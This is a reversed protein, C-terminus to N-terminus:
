LSAVDYDALAAGIRSLSSAIFTRARPHDAVRQALMLAALGPLVFGLRFRQWDGNGATVLDEDCQRRVTPTISTAALWALDAEGFQVAIQQWDFLMPAGSNAFCLNDARPDGHCLTAVGSSGSGAQTFLDVLRERNALVNAFADVAQQDVEPWHDRLCSLGTDLREPALLAVTAERVNHAAVPNNAEGLADIWHHHHRALAQAVAIVDAPSLGDLQDVFRNATLDELLFAATPGDALRAYCRPTAIPSEPLLFRYAVDERLYAGSAAAADRNATETPLKAVVTSPVPEITHPESKLSVRFVDSFTGKGIGVEETAAIEASSGFAAEVLRELTPTGCLTTPSNVSM